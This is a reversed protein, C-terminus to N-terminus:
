AQTNLLVANAPSKLILESLLPPTTVTVFAKALPMTVMSVAGVTRPGHDGAFFAKVSPERVSISVETSEPVTKKRARAASREPALPEHFKTKSSMRSRAERASFILKGDSM